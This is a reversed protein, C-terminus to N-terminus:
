QPVVLQFVSMDVARGEGFQRATVLGALYQRGRVVVILPSGSEGHQAPCDHVLSGFDPDEVGRRHTIKLLMCKHVKLRLEGAADLSFGAQLVSQGALLDAPAAISIPPLTSTPWINIFAVDWREVITSQRNRQPDFEFPVRIAGASAVGSEGGIQRLRISAVGLREGGRDFVCHAATVLTEPDLLAGSCMSGDSLTVLGVTAALVKLSSSIVGLAAILM